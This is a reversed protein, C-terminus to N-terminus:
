CDRKLVRLHLYLNNLQVSIAEEKEKITLINYHNKLLIVQPCTIRDRFRREPYYPLSQPQCLLKFLSSVGGLQVRPGGSM